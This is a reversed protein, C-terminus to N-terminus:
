QYFTRGNVESMKTVLMFRHAQTVIPKPGVPRTPVSMAPKKPVPM